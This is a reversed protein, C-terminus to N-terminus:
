RRKPSKKKPAAPTKREPTKRKPSAKRGAKKPAAPSKSKPSKKPTKSPTRKAPTKKAPTKKAPTRRAAKRPAAPVARQPTARRPSHRHAQKAPARPSQARARREPTVSAKIEAIFEDVMEAKTASSLERRPSHRPATLIPLADRAASVRPPTARRASVRPATERRASSRRATSRRGPQVAAPLSAVAKRVEPSKAIRICEAVKEEVESESVFIGKVKNCVMQLFSTMMAALSSLALLSLLRKLTGIWTKSSGVSFANSVLRDPTMRKTYSYVQQFCWWLNNTYTNPEPSMGDGVIRTFAPLTSPLSDAFGAASANLAAGATANATANAAGMTANATASAAGMGFYSTINGMAASAYASLNAYAGAVAGYIGGAAFSIITYAQVILGWILQPGGLGLFISIVLIVLIGAVVKELMGCSAGGELAFGGALEMREVVYAIAPNYDKVQELFQADTLM